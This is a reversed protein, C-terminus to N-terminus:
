LPFILGSADPRGIAPRWHILPLLYLRRRLGRRRESGSPSPVGLCLSQGGFIGVHLVRNDSGRRVAVRLASGDALAHHSLRAFYMDRCVVADAIHYFVVVTLFSVAVKQVDVDRTYLAAIEERFVWTAASVILAAVLATNMVMFTAKRASEPQKAGLSQSVLVTGSLGIAFPIM